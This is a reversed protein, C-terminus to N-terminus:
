EIVRTIRVSDDGVVGAYEHTQHVRRRGRPSREVGRQGALEEGAAFNREPITAAM